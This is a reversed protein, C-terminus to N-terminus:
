SGTLSPGPVLGPFGPFLYFSLFQGGSVALFGYESQCGRKGDANCLKGLGANANAFRVSRAMGARETRPRYHSPFMAHIAIRSLQFTTARACLTGQRRVCRAAPSWVVVYSM